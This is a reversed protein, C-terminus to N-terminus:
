CMCRCIKGPVRWRWRRREEEKLHRYAETKEMQELLAQMPHLRYPLLRPTNKMAAEYVAEETVGWMHLHTNEM